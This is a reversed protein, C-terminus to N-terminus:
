FSKLMDPSAKQLLKIRINMCSKLLFSSNILILIYNIVDKFRWGVENIHRSINATTFSAGLGCKEDSLNFLRSCMDLNDASSHPNTYILYSTFIVVFVLLFNLLYFRFNKKKIM